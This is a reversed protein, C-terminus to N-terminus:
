VVSKRDLRSPFCLNGRDARIRRHRYLRCAFFFLVVVGLTWRNKELAFRTPGTPPPEIEVGRVYEAIYKVVVSETVLAEYEPRQQKQLADIYAKEKRLTRPRYHRPDVWPYLLIRRQKNGTELFLSTFQGGAIKYMPGIWARRVSLWQLSWDRRLFNLPGPMPSRFEIGTETLILRERTRSGYALILFYMLLVPTAVLAFVMGKDQLLREWASDAIESPSCNPCAQYLILYLLAGAVIILCLLLVGLWIMIRQQPSGPLFGRNHLVLM